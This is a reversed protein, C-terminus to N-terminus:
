TALHEKLFDVAARVRRPLFQRSPYLLWAGTEFNTATARHRPFLAVLRGARLETEILWHPLLAPGLGALACDLLALANSVTIDTSIKIRTIEGDADRFIWQKRFDAIGLTLCSHEALERPDRGFRNQALYEPSACVQYRTDFLKAAIYDGEIRPSLRIALDMREAVLDVNVDTFSLELKLKPYRDHFQRLLPVIRMQGLAFSTTLRLTGALATDQSRAREQALELQDVVGEISELYDQGAPTLSLKRTSRQFLRVGLGAEFAALNRSVTAPDVERKRAVAALSGLKAIDVFLKLTAIEM